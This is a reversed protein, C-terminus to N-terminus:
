RCRRHCRPRFRNHRINFVLLEGVLDADKFRKQVDGFNEWKAKKAITYWIELEKKVDKGKDASVKVLERKRIVNM